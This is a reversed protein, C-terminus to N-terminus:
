NLFTNCVARAFEMTDTNKVNLDRLKSLADTQRDKEVGLQEYLALLNEGTGRSLDIAIKGHNIAIFRAVKSQSRTKDDIKSGKIPELTILYRNPDYEATPTDNIFDVAFGTTSFYGSLVNGIVWYNFRSMLPLTSDGYGAKKVEVKPVPKRPLVPACPTTCVKAGDVYVDAKTPSSDIYVQQNKTSVISACGSSVMGIAAVLVILLRKM